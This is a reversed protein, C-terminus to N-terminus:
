TVANAIANVVPGIDGSMVQQCGVRLTLTKGQGDPAKYDVALNLRLADELEFFQRVETVNPAKEKLEEKLKPMVEECKKQFETSSVSYM